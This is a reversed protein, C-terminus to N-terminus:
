LKVLNWSAVSGSYNHYRYFFQDLNFL